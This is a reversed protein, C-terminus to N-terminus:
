GRNHCLPSSSFAVTFTKNVRDHPLLNSRPQHLSFLANALVITAYWNKSVTSNQELLSVVDTFAAANLIVVQNLTHFDAVVRWFGVVMCVPWTLVSADRLVQMTANSEM